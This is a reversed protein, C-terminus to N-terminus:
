ILCVLQVTSVHQVTYPSPNMFPRLDITCRKEEETVNVEQLLSLTNYVYLIVSHYWNLVFCVDSTMWIFLLCESAACKGATVCAVM